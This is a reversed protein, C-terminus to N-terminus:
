KVTNNKKDLKDGLTKPSSMPQYMKRPPQYFVLWWALMLRDTGAEQRTFLFCVSSRIFVFCILCIEKEYVFIKMLVDVFVILEASHVVFHFCLTFCILIRFLHWCTLHFLVVLMSKVSIVLVFYRLDLDRSGLWHALMQLVTVSHLVALVLLVCYHFYLWGWFVSVRHFM